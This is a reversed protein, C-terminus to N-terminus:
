TRTSDTFQVGGWWRARDSGHACGREARVSPSLFALHESHWPHAELTGAFSALNLFVMDVTENLRIPVANTSTDFGNNAAAAEYDPRLAAPSGTTVLVFWPLAVASIRTGLQSVSVAALLGALARARM